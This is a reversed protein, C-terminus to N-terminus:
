AEAEADTTPPEFGALRRLGRMRMLAIGLEFLALLMVSLVLLSWPDQTPLLAAGLVCGMVVHKRYRTLQEARVLGAWSLLMLVLPVQFAIGFALGMMLVLNIYEGVRYQQAIVGGSGLAVAMVHGPGGQMRIQGLTSNFWMSGTAVDGPPDFQLVPMQPLVLDPPLPATDVRVDILTAGFQILFYLCLPLIVFYLIAMGVATLALSMPILVYVFRQENDYLGPAIFLWVQYLIWPLGALLASVSAVKLFASFSEIPSTAQLNPAQGAAHLAHIVPQTIITLLQGGLLLGAIFLIGVGILSFILRRRLEELHDGISM